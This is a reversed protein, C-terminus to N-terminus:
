KPNFYQLLEQLAETNTIQGIAIFSLIVMALQETALLPATVLVSTTTSTILVTFQEVLKQVTISLCVILSASM